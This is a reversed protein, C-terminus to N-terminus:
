EITRGTARKEPMEEVKSQNSRSGGRYVLFPPTKTKDKLHCRWREETEKGQDDRTVV